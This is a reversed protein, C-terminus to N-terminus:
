KGLAALEAAKTWTDRLHRCLGVVERAAKPDRRVNAQVLRRQLYDYLAMLERGAPMKEVQLTSQLETVIAQAHTYQENAVEINRAAVATYGREVDLVLRDFLMVLLRAPSATGVTAGQYTARADRARLGLNM